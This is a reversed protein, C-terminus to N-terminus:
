GSSAPPQPFLNVATGSADNGHNLLSRVVPTCAGVPQDGTLACLAATIYDATALIAQGTLSAPNRLDAAIQSSTQHELLPPLFGSGTLVYKNGFDLFPVAKLRAYKRFVAQQAPTLKQLRTYSGTAQPNARRSILIDSRTEVPVFALYKSSYASGYFTWTALPPYLEYRASRITSLGTFTRFRSLAVIMSWVETACYPCYETGVFLVEPKGDAGLPSGTVRTPAAIVQGAGNGAADSVSVPVGTVQAILRALASNVHGAATGGAPSTGGPRIGALVAVAAIVVVAAAAGAILLRNRGPRAPGSGRAEPAFGIIERPMPDPV